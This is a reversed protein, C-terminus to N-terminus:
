CILIFLACGALISLQLSLKGKVQLDQRAAEEAQRFRLIIEEMAKQQWAPQPAHLGELLQRLCLQMEKKLPPQGAMEMIDDLPLAGANEMKEGLRYLYHQNDPANKQLLLPLPPSSFHLDAAMKQFATLYDKLADADNKYANYRMFGYVMCACACCLAGLLRM